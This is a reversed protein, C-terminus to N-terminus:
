TEATQGLMTAASEQTELKEHIAAAAHLALRNCSFNAVKRTSGLALIRRDPELKSESPALSINGSGSLYKKPSFM